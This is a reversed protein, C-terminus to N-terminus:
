GFYRQEHEIYESWRGLLYQENEALSYRTPDRGDEPPMMRLFPWTSDPYQFDGAISEANGLPDDFQSRHDYIWRLLIYLWLRQIDHDDEPDRWGILRREYAWQVERWTLSPRISQIDLIPIPRHIVVDKRRISYYPSGVPGSNENRRLTRAGGVQAHWVDEMRIISCGVNGRGTSHVTGIILHNVSDDMRSTSVVRTASIGNESM